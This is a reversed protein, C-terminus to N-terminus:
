DEADSARQRHEPFGVRVTWALPKQLFTRLLDVGCKGCPNQRTGDGSDCGGGEGGLKLTSHILETSVENAIKEEM